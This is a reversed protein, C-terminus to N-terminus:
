GLMQVIDTSALWPSRWIQRPRSSRPQGVGTEMHEFAGSSCSVTLQALRPAPDEPQMGEARTDMADASFSQLERMISSNSQQKCPVQWPEDQATALRCITNQASRCVYALEM